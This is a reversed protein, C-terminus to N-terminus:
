NCIDKIVNIFPMDYTSYTIGGPDINMKPSFAIGVKAQRGAEKLVDMFPVTESLTLSIRKKMAPTLTPASPPPKPQFAPKVKQCEPARTMKEYDEKQLKLVPDHYARHDVLDCGTVLMIIWLFTLTQKRVM